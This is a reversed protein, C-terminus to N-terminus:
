QFSLEILKDSNSSEYNSVLDIWFKLLALRLADSYPDLARREVMYSNLSSILRSQYEIVILRAEVAFFIPFHSRMRINDHFYMENPSGVIQKFTSEASPFTEDLVVETPKKNLNRQFRMATIICISMYKFFLEYREDCETSKLPNGASDM